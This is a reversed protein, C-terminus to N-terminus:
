VFAVAIGRSRVLCSFGRVFIQFLVKGKDLGIWNRLLILEISVIWRIRNLIGVSWLLCIQVRGRSTEWSGGCGFDSGLFRIIALVAWGVRRSLHIPHRKGTGEIVIRSCILLIQSLPLTTEVVGIVM